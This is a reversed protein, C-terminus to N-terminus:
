CLAAPPHTVMVTVYTCGLMRLSHCDHFSSCWWSNPSAVHPHPYPNTQSGRPMPKPDKLRTEKAKTLHRSLHSGQLVTGPAGSSAERPQRSHQTLPIRHKGNCRGPCAAEHGKMHFQWKLGGPEPQTGNVWRVGFPQLGQAHLEQGLMWLLVHTAAMLQLLIPHSPQAEHKAFHKQTTKSM